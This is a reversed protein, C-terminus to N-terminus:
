ALAHDTAEGKVIKMFIQEFNITKRDISEVPTSEAKLVEFLDYIEENRQLDIELTSQHTDPIYTLTPFFQLLKTHQQDTLRAGLTVKYSRVEFLRLLNEVRDDTVITGNNIIVTRECLDQIVDMDHSSIIITRNYDKVIGRLLERVEYGTEVDLGLTPEDLLIVDSDALMAVAIALKQQMGRSLRNVLEHEKNKLNFKALLDEIQAAAEKRSVGRNGAFYDLNERVTLRWYLNRNGELVSSIHQLAKLRKEQNNIGNILITGEDPKLLGCIMKITSTKGAGNPGLLGLIEGKRVSFSIDNVAQVLEKTKRKKYTKKVNSVQVIDDM